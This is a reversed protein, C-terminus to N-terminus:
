GIYKGAETFFKRSVANGRIELEVLFVVKGIVNQHFGIAHAHGMGNFDTRGKEVVADHFKGRGEGGIEFNAPFALLVQEVLQHIGLEGTCDHPPLLDAKIYGRMFPQAARKSRHHHFRQRRRFRLMRFQKAELYNSVVHLEMQVFTDVDTVM